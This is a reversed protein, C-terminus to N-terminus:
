RTFAIGAFKGTHTLKRMQIVDPDPYFSPQAQNVRRNKEFLAYLIYPNAEEQQSEKEESVSQGINQIM